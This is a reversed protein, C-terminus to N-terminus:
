LRVQKPVLTDGELVYDVKSMDLGHAEAISEWLAKQEGALEALRAEGQKMVTQVFQDLGVKKAQAKALGAAEAPSLTIVEPTSM